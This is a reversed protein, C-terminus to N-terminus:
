RMSRKRQPDAIVNIAATIKTSQPVLVIEANPIIALAAFVFVLLVAIFIGIKLAIWAPHRRNAQADARDREVAARQAERRKRKSPTWPGLEDDEAHPKHWQAKRQAANVSRFAPLDADHAATRIEGESSVIAVDIGNAEGFRAVVQMDVLKRLSPSDWPIVLLM